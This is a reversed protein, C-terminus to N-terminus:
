LIRFYGDEFVGEFEDGDSQLMLEPLSLSPWAEFCNLTLHVHGHFLECISLYSDLSETLAGFSEKSTRLLIAKTKHEKASPGVSATLVNNYQALDPDIVICSDVTELLRHTLPLLHPHDIVICSFNVNREEKTRNSFVAALSAAANSDKLFGEILQAPLNYAVKIRLYNDILCKIPAKSYKRM